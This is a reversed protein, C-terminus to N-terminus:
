GRKVKPPDAKRFMVVDRQLAASQQLLNQMAAAASAPRAGADFRLTRKVIVVNGEVVTELSIHLGHGDIQRAPPVLDVVFGEPATIRIIDEFREPRTKMVDSRRPQYASIINDDWENHLVTLPMVRRGDDLTADGVNGSGAVEDTCASRHCHYTTEEAEAAVGGLWSVIRRLRRHHDSRSWDRHETAFDTALLGTRTRLLQFTAVGTDGLQINTQTAQEAGVAASGPLDIITAKLGDSYPSGKTAIAVARTHALFPRVVNLGCNECGTDMVVTGGPVHIRVLLTTIPWSMPYTEDFLASRTGAAYVLDVEIGVDRLLKALLASREGATLADEALAEKMPRVSRDNADSLEHSRVEAWAAAVCALADPKCNGHKFGVSVDRFAHETGLGFAFLAHWALAHEWTDEFTIFRGPARLDLIRFLWAPSTYQSDASWPEDIWAAINSLSSTVRQFRSQKDLRFAAPYRRGMLDFRLTNDVYFELAYRDTPSASGVVKGISTDLYDDKTIIIVEVVSGVEVRPVRFVRTSTAIKGVQGQAEFMEDDGVVRIRGDKSLSRAYIALLETKKNLEFRFQNAERGGERLVEFVERRERYTAWDGRSAVLGIREHELRTVLFGDGHVPGSRMAELNSVPLFEFGCGYPLALVCPGAMAMSMLLSVIM